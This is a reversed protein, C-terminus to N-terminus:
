ARLIKQGELPREPGRRRMAMKRGYFGAREFPCNGANPLAGLSVLTEIRVGCDLAKSM